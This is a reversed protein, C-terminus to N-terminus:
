DLAEASITEIEGRSGRGVKMLWKKPRDPVHVHVDPAKVVVHQAGKPQSEITSSIIERVKAEDLAMPKPALDTDAKPTAGKFYLAKDKPIKM